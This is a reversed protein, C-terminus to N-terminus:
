GQVTNTQGVHPSGGGDLSDTFEGGGDVGGVNHLREKATKISNILKNHIEESKGKKAVMWRLM